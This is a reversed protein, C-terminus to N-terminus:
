TMIANKSLGKSKDWREGNAVPRQLYCYIFIEMVQFCHGIQVFSIQM